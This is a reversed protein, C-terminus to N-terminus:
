VNNPKILDIDVIPLQQIINQKLIQLLNVNGIQNKIFTECYNRM